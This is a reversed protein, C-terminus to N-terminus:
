TGGRYSGPYNLPHSLWIKLPKLHM